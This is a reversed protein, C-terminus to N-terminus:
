ERAAVTVKIKASVEPALRLEVEHDGVAKISADLRVVSKDVSFGSAKLRKLVDAKGVSGVLKGEAGAPMTFSLAVASLKEALERATKIEADVLKARKDKGREWQKIAAPTAAVAFGNPLLYNRGYGAAVDKVDGARGLNEVTSRLIVKM